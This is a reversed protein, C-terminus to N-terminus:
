TVQSDPQEKVQTLRGDILRFAPTPSQSIGDSISTHTSMTKLARYFVDPWLGDNRAFFAKLGSNASARFSCFSARLAASHTSPSIIEFMVVAREAWLVLSQWPGEPRAIVNSM